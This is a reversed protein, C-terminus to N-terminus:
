SNALAVMVLLVPQPSLQQFSIKEGNHLSSGLPVPLTPNRQTREGQSASLPCSDGQEEECPQGV